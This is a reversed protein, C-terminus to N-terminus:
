NFAINYNETMRELDFYGYTVFKVTDNEVFVFAPVWPLCNMFSDFDPHVARLLFANEGTQNFDFFDGPTQSLSVIPIDPYTERLEDVVTAMEHCHGCNPSFFELIYKNDGFNDNSKKEGNSMTWVFTPVKQGILDKAYEIEDDLYFDELTEGTEERLVFDEAIVGGEVWESIYEVTPKEDVVPTGEKHPLTHNSQFQNRDTNIIINTDNNTENVSGSDSSCGVLSISLALGIVLTLIQKNKM